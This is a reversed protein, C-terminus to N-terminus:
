LHTILEFIIRDDQLESAKVLHKSYNLRLAGKFPKEIFTLTVGSTIRQGNETYLYRENRFTNNPTIADYRIGLSIKQLYKNRINIDYFLFTQLAHTPKFCKEAYRKYLYEVEFHFNWFDYTLGMDYNYTRITDPSVSCFNLTLNLSKYLTFEGRAVYNLRPQWQNQQDYRLNGNFIGAVIKFPLTNKNEYSITAGVDSWGTIRQTLFSKDSFYYRYPSLLNETSFPLKDYGITLALNKIPKFQAYLAVLSIKGGYALDVLARYSFMPHIDGNVGVRAHRIEFHHANKIPNYEYRSLITASFHPKYSFTQANTSDTLKTNIKSQSYACFSALLAVLLGVRKIFYLNM